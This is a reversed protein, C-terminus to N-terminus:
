SYLKKLASFRNTDLRPLGLYNCCISLDVLNWDFATLGKIFSLMVNQKIGGYPPRQSDATLVALCWKFRTAPLANNGNSSICVNNVWISAQRLERGKAGKDDSGLSGFGHGNEWQLERSRSGSGLCLRWWWWCITRTAVLRAPAAVSKSRHDLSYRPWKCCRLFHFLLVESTVMLSRTIIRSSLVGGTVQRIM